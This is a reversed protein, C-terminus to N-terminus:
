FWHVAFVFPPAGRSVDVRCTIADVGSFDLLSKGFALLPFRSVRSGLRLSPETIRRWIAARQSEFRRLGRFSKRLGPVVADITANVAVAQAGILMTVILRLCRVANVVVFDISQAPNM